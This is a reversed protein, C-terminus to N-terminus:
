TIGKPSASKSDNFLLLIVYSRIWCDASYLKVEGFEVDTDAAKFEFQTIEVIGIRGIVFVTFRESETVTISGGGTTELEQTSLAVVFPIGSCRRYNVKM